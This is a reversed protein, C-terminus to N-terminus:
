IKKDYDPRVWRTVHPFVHLCAKNDFIPLVIIIKHENQAHNKLLFTYSIRLDRGFCGLKLSVYRSFPFKNQISKEYKSEHSVETESFM